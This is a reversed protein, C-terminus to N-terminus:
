RLSVSCGASSSSRTASWTATRRTPWCTADCSSHTAGAWGLVLGLFSRLFVVPSLGSVRWREHLLSRVLLHVVFLLCRRPKPSSWATGNAFDRLETKRVFNQGEKQNVVSLYCIAKCPSACHNQLYFSIFHKSEDALGDSGPYIKM